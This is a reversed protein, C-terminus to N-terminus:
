RTLTTCGYLLVLSALMAVGPALSARLAPWLRRDKFYLGIMHTLVIAGGTAGFAVFTTIKVLAGLVGGVAMFVLFHRAGSQLTGVLGYLFLSAFFLATSEIMVTRSWFAYLPSFLMLIAFAFMLDSTAGLRRMTLGAVGIAGAYFAWNVIRGAPDLPVGVLHLLACIWQYVPLEFPITWPHGIVPTEYALWPGGRALWMTTLGTQSQRFNHIDLVGQNLGAFLAGLSFALAGILLVRLAIAGYDRGRYLAALDFLRAARSVIQDM